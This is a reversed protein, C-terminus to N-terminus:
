TIIKKVEECFRNGAFDQARQKAGDSLTQLLGPNEILGLTKQKLEDLTNWLLGNKGDAVIEPQGGANIVIPVAGAGMAEVTSIGFHEAFEPHAKLDEGFGSAHWYIKAKSYADWLKKNTQNVLFEIPYGEATKKMAEFEPEDNSQVSVALVFRWGGAPPNADVMEKFAQIMASQKKYDNAGTTKDHPRFRGVHLVINERNVPQPDLFVPPYLIVGKGLFTKPVFIQTFHSNFIIKNVRMMKLFFKVSSSDVHALPQQIHVFLKKSGVLPISGDSLVILADYQKTLKFRDWTAIQPSFLNKVVHFRSTDIAFREKITVLDDPNDWFIDVLNNQSLCEAITMMYKEGGGCDDLYPDYIGIRM